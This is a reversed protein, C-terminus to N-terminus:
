IVLSLIPGIQQFGLGICVGSLLVLALTIKKVKGNTYAVQMEIRSLSGAAANHNESIKLEIVNQVNEIKEGIRAEMADIERKSYDKDAM